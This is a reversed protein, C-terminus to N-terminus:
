ADTYILRASYFVIPRNTAQNSIFYAWLSNGERNGSTDWRMRQLSKPIDITIYRATAFNGLGAGDNLTILEDYLTSYHRMNDWNRHSTLEQAATTNQFYDSAIFDGPAKKCCIVMRLTTVYTSAVDTNLTCALQIRKPAVLAGVRQTEGTGQAIQALNITVGADDAATNGTIDFRKREVSSANQRAVSLAQKAVVLASKSPPGGMGRRKGRRPRKSDGGQRNDDAFRKGM